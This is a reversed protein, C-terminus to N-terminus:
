GPIDHCQRSKFFAGHGWDHHILFIGVLFGGALIALAISWSVMVSRYMLYWLLAYPGLTNVIQWLARWTSPKQYKVVIEKWALAGAPGNEETSVPHKNNKM